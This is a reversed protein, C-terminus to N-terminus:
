RTEAESAVPKQGTAADRVCDPEWAAVRPILAAEITAYADAAHYLHDVQTYDLEPTIM